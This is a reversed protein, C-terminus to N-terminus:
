KILKQLIQRRNLIINDIKNKHAIKHKEMYSDYNQLVDVCKQIINNYNEFHILGNIDLLEQNLCNESVILMDGSFIWRDCRMSEYISYDDYAHINILIKCKSLIIDRGDNWIAGYKCIRNVRYGMKELTDYIHIRRPTEYGVTAVDFIKDLKLYKQLNNNEVSYFQYPIFLSQMGLEALIDVNDLSYDILKLKGGYKNYLDVLQKMSKKNTMQETNVIYIEDIGINFCEGINIEDEKQMILLKNHKDVNIAEKLKDFDFYTVSKYDLTLNFCLARVYDEFYYFTDKCCFIFINM